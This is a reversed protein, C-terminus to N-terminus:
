LALRLVIEDDNMEGTVTLSAVADENTDDIVRLTIDM